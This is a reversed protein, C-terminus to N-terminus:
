PSIRTWSHISVRPIDEGKFKLFLLAQGDDGSKEIDEFPHTWLHREDKSGGIRALSLGDDIHVTLICRM